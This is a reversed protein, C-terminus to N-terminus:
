NDNIFIAKNEGLKLAQFGSLLIINSGTQHDVICGLQCFIKVADKGSINSLFGM